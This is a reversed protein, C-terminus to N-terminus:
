SATNEIIGFPKGPIVLTAKMFSSGFDFGILDANVTPIYCLLVLVSSITFIINKNM